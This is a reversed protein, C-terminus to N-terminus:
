AVLAALKQLSETLAITTADKIRAAMMKVATGNFEYAV